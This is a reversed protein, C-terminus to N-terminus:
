KINPDHINAIVIEIDGKIHGQEAAWRIIKEATERKIMEDM